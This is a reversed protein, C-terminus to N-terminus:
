EHYIIELRNMEEAKIRASLIGRKQKTLVAEAEKEVKRCYGSLNRKM